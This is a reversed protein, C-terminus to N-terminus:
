EFGDGERRRGNRRYPNVTSVMDVFDQPNRAASELAGRLLPVSLPKGLFGNAGEAALAEVEHPDRYASTTLILVDPNAAENGRRVWRVFAPGSMPEMRVDTIICDLDHRRVMEMAVSGDLAELPPELGLMLLM